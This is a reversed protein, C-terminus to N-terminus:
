INYLIYKTTDEINIYNIFEEIIEIKTDSLNNKYNKVILNHNSLLTDNTINWNRIDIRNGTQTIFINSPFTSIRSKLRNGRKYIEDKNFNYNKNHLVSSYKWSNDETILSM